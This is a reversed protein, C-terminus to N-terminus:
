KRKRPIFFSAPIVLLAMGLTVGLTVVIDYLM